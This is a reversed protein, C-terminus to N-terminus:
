KHWVVRNVYETYSSIIKVVHSSVNSVEYDRIQNFKRSDDSTALKISNIVGEATLGSMVVAGVDMGEPREHTKRIMVGPFRMADVEETLTGSDSLVCFACQQLQNYDFYGLPKSLIVREDLELDSLADIRKRTRPHVSVLVKKDFHRAAENLSGLLMRLDTEYDVNEERHASVLIYGHKDLGLNELVKSSNISDKYTEYIEPIPSGTKIITEPKIGERELYKRAHDSHVMNIDSLHDVIKRNLEEPVLQDFCRNGAEMHFVPIQLRKASLVCLCSNTDGYVLLADPKAERLYEDSKSIVNAVTQSASEGAVNLFMDPKRIGLDEFFVQNLEYDYNQGTHVLKHDFFEDCKKIVKSLKILEPRTGVITVLKLKM